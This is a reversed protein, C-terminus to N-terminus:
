SSGRGDNNALMIVMATPNTQLASTLTHAARNEILKGSTINISFPIEKMPIKGFPGFQATDTRYGSESSGEKVGVVVLEQLDTNSKTLVYDYNKKESLDITVTISQYGVHSIQLAYRGKGPPNKIEYFGKEDSIAFIKLDPITINTGNLPEGSIKDTIKGKIIQQSFAPSTSLILCLYIFLTTTIFAKVNKDKRNM